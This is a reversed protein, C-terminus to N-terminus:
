KLEPRHNAGALRGLSLALELLVEDSGVWGILSMGAPVGGLTGVPITIQPLGSIGAICTLRMVRARFLELDSATSSKLPAICPATPLLLLTGPMAITRIHACAAEQEKRAVDTAHKTVSAAFDM